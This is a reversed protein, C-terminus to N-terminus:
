SLYRWEIRTVETAPGAGFDRFLDMFEHFVRHVNNERRESWFDYRTSVFKKEAQTM